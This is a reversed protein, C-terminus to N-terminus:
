WNPFPIKEDFLENLYYERRYRKDCDNSGSIAYVCPEYLGNATPYMISVPSDNKTVDSRHPRKLLCHGLEHLILSERNQNYTTKWCLNDTTDIKITRQLNGKNQIICEGCAGNSTKEFVMILNELVITKGRKQAEDVFVKLYPEFVANIKYIAPEIITQKECSLIMLFIIPFLLKKMFIPFFQPKELWIYNKQIM